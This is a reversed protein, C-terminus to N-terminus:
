RTAAGRTTGHLWGERIRRAEDTPHSVELVEYRVDRMEGLRFEFELVKEDRRIRLRM